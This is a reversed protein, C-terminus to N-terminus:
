TNFSRYAIFLSQSITLLPRTCHPTYVHHSLLPQSCHPTHMTFPHTITSLLPSYICLSPQTITSFLSSYAYYISSYHNLANLLKSMTALYHNIVTLLICSLHILLPQSCHPTYADQTSLLPQSCHPTNAHHTSLLPQSCHPTYAYHPSLLPQSCHPTHM